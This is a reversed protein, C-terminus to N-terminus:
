FMNPQRPPRQDHDIAAIRCRTEDDRGAHQILLHLAIDVLIGVDVGHRRAKQSQRDASGHGGMAQKRRLFADAVANVGLEKQRDAQDLGQASRKIRTISIERHDRQEAPVITRYKVIPFSRIELLEHRVNRARQL